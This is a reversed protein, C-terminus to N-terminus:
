VDNEIRKRIRKLIKSLKDSSIGLKKSIDTHYLGDRKMIIIQKELENKIPIYDEINDNTIEHKTKYSPQATVVHPMQRKNQKRIYKLMENRACTGVFTTVKGRSPDYKNGNKWISMKGIQVLDDISYIPNQKYMSIAYQYILGENNDIM